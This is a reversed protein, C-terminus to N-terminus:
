VALEVEEEAGETLIILNFQPLATDEQMDRVLFEVVPAKAVTVRHVQVLVALNAFLLAEVVGM